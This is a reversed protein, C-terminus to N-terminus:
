KYGGREIQSFLTLGVNLDDELRLTYKQTHEDDDIYGPFLYELLSNGTYYGFYHAFKLGIDEAYEFFDNREPNRFYDLNAKLGLAMEHKVATVMRLKYSAILNDTYDEKKCSKETLYPRLMRVTENYETERRRFEGLNKRLLDFLYDMITENAKHYLISTDFNEFNVTIVWDLCLYFRYSYM